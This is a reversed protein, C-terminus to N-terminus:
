WVRFATFRGPCGPRREDFAVYASVPSDHDVTCCEPGIGLAAFRDLSQVSPPDVRSEFVRRLTSWQKLGTPAPASV